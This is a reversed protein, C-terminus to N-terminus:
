FWIRLWTLWTILIQTRIIMCVLTDRWGVRYSIVYRLSRFINLMKCIDDIAISTDKALKKAPL